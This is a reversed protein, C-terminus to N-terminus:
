LHASLTADIRMRRQPSARGPDTTRYHLFSYGGRATLWPRVRRELWGTFRMAKAEPGAIRLPRSQGYGGEIGFVMARTLTDETGVALQRLLNPERGIAAEASLASDWKLYVRGTPIPRDVRATAMAPLGPQFTVTANVIGEDFRPGRLGLVLGAGRWLTGDGFEVQSGGVEIQGTVFPSIAKRYGVMALSSRVATWSGFELQLQRWGVLLASERRYVPLFSADWAIRQADSRTSGDYKLGEIRYGGEGRWRSTRAEADWRIVNGPVAILRQPDDILDHTRQYDARASVGDIESWLRRAKMEGFDTTSESALSGAARPLTPNFTYRRRASLQLLSADGRLAFGVEPIVIGRAVQVTADLPARYDDYWSGVTIGPSWLAQAGARGSITSIGVIALSCALAPGCAWM